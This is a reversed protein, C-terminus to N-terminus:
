LTKDSMQSTMASFGIQRLCQKTILRPVKNHKNNIITQIHNYLHTYIYMYIYFKLTSQDLVISPDKGDQKFYVDAFVSPPILLQCDM